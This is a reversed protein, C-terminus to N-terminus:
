TAAEAMRSPGRRTSQSATLEAEYNRREIQSGDQPTVVKDIIGYEIAQQPTFYRNRGVEKRLQEKPRGTFRALTDVYMKTSYELENAKIMINSTSGFTRNMRPPATMLRAHELSFRCGKKGCAAIMAANGFAQGIVLTYVDPRIYGLTDLIAYAETEFGVAQGDPTQSGISNLYVYIQKEPNNYNLWLLESIVLETVAPVLPMGIYCIRADLLLSPLDPPASGPGGGGTAGAYGGSMRTVMRTAEGVKDNGGYFAKATLTDPEPEAGPLPRHQSGMGLAAMQKVTLGFEQDLEQSRLREAPDPPMYLGTDPLSFDFQQAAVQQRCRQTRGLRQV